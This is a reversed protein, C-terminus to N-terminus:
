ESYTVTNFAMRYLFAAMAERSIAEGGRYTGDDYGTSIKTHYVWSIDEALFYNEPVDVFSSKGAGVRTVTSNPFYQNFDPLKSFRHLFAAMADRHVPELPHYGGDRYGTTIGVSAAWAIAKRFPNDSIDNFKNLWEESVEPKGAMRWLFAAMADRNISDYPRFTGDKYGTTVGTAALWKVEGGFLSNGKVDTFINGSVKPARALTVQYKKKWKPFLTLDRDLVTTETVKAWEPFKGTKPDAPRRYWEEAYEGTYSDLKPLKGLAEGAARMRMPPNTSSAGDTAFKLYYQRNGLQQEKTQYVRIYDVKMQSADFDIQSPAVKFSLNLILYFHQNFPAINPYDNVIKGNAGKFSSDWRFRDGMYGGQKSILDAEPADASLHSYKKGDRYFTFGKEDWEMVFKHWAGQVPETLTFVASDGEGRKSYASHTHLVSVYRKIPEAWDIEGDGPWGRPKEDPMMWLAGWANDPFFVNAEFRGYKWSYKEQTTFGGTTIDYQRNRNNLRDPSPKVQKGKFTLYGDKLILNEGPENVYKIRANEVPLKDEALNWNENLKEYDSYNFEDNWVLDYDKGNTSIQKPAESLCNEAGCMVGSSPSNEEAFSAEPLLFTSGLLAALGMTSLMKRKM